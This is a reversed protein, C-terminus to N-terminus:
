MNQQDTYIAQLEEDLQKKRDDLLGKELEAAEDKEALLPAQAQATESARRLREYIAAQRHAYARWGLKDRNEPMLAPQTAMATWKETQKAFSKITRSFEAELIEVEEDSRERAARARFWQVRDMELEWATEQAADQGSPRAVHWFWPDRERSMGPKMALGGKGRQEKTLLPRFNKDSDPLGLARLATFACRYTDGAETIHDLLSKLYAQARTTAGIGHVHAKKEHVTWNYTRIEQRLRRLADLGQHQRLSYEVAALGHLGLSTRQNADFQSPLLISATEPQDFDVEKMHEQLRPERKLLATRVSILTNYFKKRAARVAHDASARVDKEKAHSKVLKKLKERQLELNILVEILASDTEQTVEEEVQKGSTDSARMKAYAAANIPPGSQFSPEFVSTVNGKNDIQPQISTTEWVSLEEPHEKSMRANVQIWYETRIRQESMADRYLRTLTDPMHILKNWNWHDSTGDIVDHRHGDNMERTSGGTLNHEAWGTEVIEGSLNGVHSLFWLSFIKQCKGKHGPLHIKGIAGDICNIIGTMEPFCERFRAALKIGYKCWIDYTLKIWPLMWAESLAYSLAFDTLKYGEGNPLDVMGQPLYFGHRACVIAVVGNIVNNKFKTINQMRIVRLHDCIGEEEPVRTDAKTVEVYHRYEATPVFYANGDNLAFDHPDDKKNKRQLKFNGDASIFYTVTHRKEPPVLKLADLDLNVGVEPCAPCRVALCRPRRISLYHQDVQLSAAQGTRRQLALFRWIRCALLFENYRDPVSDPNSNDTLQCLAKVYDYASKKSTVSHILFQKMVTFTFVTKPEKFTAPFLRVSVLQEWRQGQREKCWCYLLSHRERNAFNPCLAHPAAPNANPCTRLTVSDLSTDAVWLSDRVFMKGDWREIHHFPNYQHGRVVCGRCWLPANFCETCRYEAKGQQCGCSKDIDPHAFTGLITNQLQPLWPLLDSIFKSQGQNRTRKMPNFTEAPESSEMAADPDELHPTPVTAFVSSSVDANPNSPRHLPVSPLWIGGRGRSMPVTPADILSSVPRRSVQSMPTSSGWLGGGQRTLSLSLAPPPTQSAVSVLPVSTGWLGGGQRVLSPVPIPTPTPKAPSSADALSISPGWFADSKPRKNNPASPANDASRKRTPPM